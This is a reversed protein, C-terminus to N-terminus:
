ITLLRLALAHEHAAGAIGQPRASIIEKQPDQHYPEEVRPVIAGQLPLSINPWAPNKVLRSSSAIPQARFYEIKWYGKTVAQQPISYM